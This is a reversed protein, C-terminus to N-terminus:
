VFVHVIQITRMNTRTHGAQKTCIGRYFRVEDVQAKAAKERAKFGDVEVKSANLRRQVLDM